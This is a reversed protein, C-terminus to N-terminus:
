KKEPRTTNTGPFFRVSKLVTPVDQDWVERYSTILGTNPNRELIVSGSLSVTPFLLPVNFCLDEVFRFTARESSVELSSYGLTSKSAVFLKSTGEMWQRLTYTDIEDTFTATDDYLEETLMGTVLFQRDVIDERIKGALEENSLNVLKEKKKKKNNNSDDTGVVAYACPTPPVVVAAAFAAASTQLFVERRSSWANSGSTRPPQQQQQKQSSWADVVVVVVAPNFVVSASVVALILSRFM